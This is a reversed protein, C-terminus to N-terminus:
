KKITIPEGKIGAYFVVIEALVKGKNKGTHWKEVLEVITDGAKLHLIKNDESVVTLEGKLLIGANIVTHKHMPLAEGPPIIFKLITVEPKGEKYKPLESGDWSLSTKTLVESTIGSEQSLGTTSIFLTLYIGYILKKM